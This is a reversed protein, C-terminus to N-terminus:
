PEVPSTMAALDDSLQGVTLSDREPEHNMDFASEVPLHWYYDNVLVVEGGLQAEVADLARGPATRLADVNLVPPEATRSLRDSSVPLASVHRRFYLGLVAMLSGKSALSQRGSRPQKAEALNVADLRDALAAATATREHRSRTTRRASHAWMGGPTHASDFAVLIPAAQSPPLQLSAAHGFVVKLLLSAPRQAFQFRIVPALCGAIRSWENRLHM